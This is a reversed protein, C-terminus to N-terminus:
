TLFFIISHSLLLMSTQISFAPSFYFHLPPSSLCTILLLLNAHPTSSTLMILIGKGKAKIYFQWWRGLLSVPSLCFSFFFVISLVVM